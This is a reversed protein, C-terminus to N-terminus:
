KYLYIYVYDVYGCLIFFILPCKQNGVRGVRGVGDFTSRARRTSASSSGPPLPVSNTPFPKPVTRALSAQLWSAPRVLPKVWIPSPLEIKNFFLWVFNQFGWFKAWFYSVSSGISKYVFNLFISIKMLIKIKTPVVRWSSMLNQFRYSHRHCNKNTLTSIYM